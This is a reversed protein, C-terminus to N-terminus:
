KSFKSDDEAKEEKKDGIDLKRAFGGSKVETPSPMKKRNNAGLDLSDDWWQIETWLGREAAWLAVTSSVISALWGVEEKQGGAGDVVLM